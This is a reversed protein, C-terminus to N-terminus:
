ATRPLAQIAAFRVRRAAVARDVVPKLDGSITICPTSVLEANSACTMAESAGRFDIESRVREHACAVQFEPLSQQPCVEQDHSSWIGVWEAELDM